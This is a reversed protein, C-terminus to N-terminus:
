TPAYKQNKTKNQKRYSVCKNGTAMIFFNPPLPVM